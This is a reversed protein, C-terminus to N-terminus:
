VWRDLHMKLAIAFVNSIKGDALYHKPIISLFCDPFLINNLRAHEQPDFVSAFDNVHSNNLKGSLFVLKSDGSRLVSGRSHNGKFVDVLALAYHELDKM